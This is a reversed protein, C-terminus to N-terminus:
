KFGFLMKIMDIQRNGLKPTESPKADNFLLTDRCMCGTFKSRDYSVLAVTGPKGLGPTGAPLPTLLTPMGYWTWNVDWGAVGGAPVPKALLAPYRRAFDPVRTTTVRLVFATPISRIYDRFNHLTGARVATFFALPDSGILNQGNYNGFENREGFKKGDYWAQFNDTMRLGIEFHLHARQVPIGETSTHGMTAITEGATVAQGIKLGPAVASLHAYFTFVDVDEKPHDLVIYRGYSSNSGQDNIYAVVGDMAASVPDIPNGKRDREICRIDIGEHFRHGDDRVCGFLGSTPVGTGTDQVWTTIDGGKMFAPNPTPWVVHPDAGAPLAAALTVALWISRVASLKFLKM